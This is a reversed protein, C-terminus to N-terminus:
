TKGRRLRWAARYINLDEDLPLAVALASASRIAPDILRLAGLSVDAEESAAYVQTDPRLTALTRVFLNCGAFRGEILLRDKAGILDLAADTVLAAYLAIATRQENVDAPKEIWEGSGDPFPGCGPAFTPLIMVQKTLIVPLADLMAQQDEALDIRAGLLEIERGGMFRASPVPQGFADVNVLCDRAEPLATLVVPAAPTRMAIFWTGTSLVTAERDEIEAFGRAAILAANSDHIGCHVQVADGLGFEPKLTGIPEGAKALPAFQSAWGRRKAMASYAGTAPNWLDSHCGLSTVESSAIGCLFWSWYQAWPLLMSGDLRGGMWHLQSGINLGMPLAPSGTEAFPDRQARYEALITGPIEQEYDLPAFALEGNRLAVVAAGHGVPIIHSVRHGAALVPLNEAVWAGIGAADLVAVGDATCPVNPRTRKGLLVGHASWLSLKSLTKGVDLVIITGAESM